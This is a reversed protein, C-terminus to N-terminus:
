SNFSAFGPGGGNNKCWNLRVRKGHHAMEKLMKIFEKKNNFESRIENKNEDKNEKM